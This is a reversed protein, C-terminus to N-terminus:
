GHTIGGSIKATITKTIKGDIPANTEVNTIRTAFRMKQSSGEKVNFFVIKDEKLLQEWSWYRLMYLRQLALKGGHTYNNNTNLVLNLSKNITRDIKTTVVNNSGSNKDTPLGYISHSNDNIYLKFDFGDNSGMVSSVMGYGISYIKNRMNDNRFVNNVRLNTPASTDPESSGGVPTLEFFRHTNPNDFGHIDLGDGTDAQWGSNSLGGLGSPSNMPNGNIDILQFPFDNTFLQAIQSNSNYGRSNTNDPFQNEIEDIYAETTFTIEGCDVLSGNYKRHGEVGVTGWTTTYGADTPANGNSDDVLVAERGITTIEYNDKSITPLQVDTVDKVTHLLSLDRETQGSNSPLTNNNDYYDQLRLSAHPSDVEIAVELKYKSAQTAM